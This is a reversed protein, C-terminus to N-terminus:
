GGSSQPLPKVLQAGTAGPVMWWAVVASMFALAACIWMMLRFSGIFSAAVAERIAAAAQPEITDPPTLAAMKIENSQLGARVENPLAINGLHRNLHSAFSVVMAAGLGAVALVGAVRSVANNIGSATGVRDQEVAGMVTTTLPAVSVAMGLGLTIVPGFFTTWYSGGVSPISFLFFGLGTIAPGIMLPARAGYRSVLGGSWRSLFFMLLIFPLVAAGAKTASYGQVQILDLPFVFFFISLASYLFLTLLNAGSFARSRFLPLPVMPSNVRSEVLLFALLGVIGAVLTALVLPHRWGLRSSEIMGFSLATLSFTAVSAGLWDIRGALQSRSEPVRWLSIAIVGVALPLNLFFVWRWSLHEILWGGLVPGIATTIATSGSWTGIAKGRENEDFCASIIALSEPVLFAAGIGQVARAAILHGLSTALGCYASAVAFLGVGLVFMRRRGFLDGMSGGVLILAALALAYAEVVWQVGLVSAGFSKQLAPLAVNVVTGDIFAMSSGLITAALVWMAQKGQCSATGDRSQMAIEDCPPKM